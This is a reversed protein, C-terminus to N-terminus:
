EELLNKSYTGSSECKFCFSWEDWGFMGSLILSTEAAGHIGILQFSSSFSVLKDALNMTGLNFYEPDMNSLHWELIKGPFNEPLIM